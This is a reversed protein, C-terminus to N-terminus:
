LFFRVFLTHVFLDGALRGVKTPRFIAHLWGTINWDADHSVYMAQFRVTQDVGKELDDPPSVAKISKITISFDGEQEGFFSHNWSILRM